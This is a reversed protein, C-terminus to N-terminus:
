SYINNIENKYFDVIKNKKMSLKPTLFGNDITFEHDIIILDNPIEYKKTNDKLINNIEDLLFDKVPYNNDNINDYEPYVIAINYPKNEGYLMIQKIYKSMILKQEIVDPTVFKGNELKYIEKERGVLFLRKENDLYGTDGTKFYKKNDIVKFNNKNDKENKYSNMVNPGNVYIEGVKNNELENDNLLIKVDVNDIPKGVSGLKRDPYENSGLTIMPSTESMGYGEVIKININEFFELVDKPTAAGGVFSIKLNGGLKNRIKQFIYKDYINQIFLEHKHVKENNMNKKIIKNSNSLGYNFLKKLLDKKSIEKQINSYISNYLTPVSYLITPKENILEEPLKKIGESIKITGGLSIMGHLECTQGYCHAWPLFSISKSNSEFLSDFNKLNSRIGLINSIYNKHTLVVGKPLGTTGSTYIISAIDDEKTKSYNNNILYSKCEEKIKKYSDEYKSDLDLCIIKKIKSTKYFDLCKDYIEKTSVILLEIESDNIIYEWDKMMQNEYMPVFVSNLAYTSYAFYAWEPRNSSIIGVKKGDKINFKHLVKKLNEVEINFENYLISNRKYNFLISNKHKECTKKQLENLTKFDYVIKRKQNNFINKINRINSIKLM